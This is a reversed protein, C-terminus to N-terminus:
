VGPDTSFSSIYISTITFVCTATIQTPHLYTTWDRRRWLRPKSLFGLLKILFSDDARAASHAMGARRIGGEDTGVEAWRKTMQGTM